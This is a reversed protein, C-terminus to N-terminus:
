GIMHSSLDLRLKSGSHKMNCFSTENNYYALLLIAIVFFEKNVISMLLGLSTMESM